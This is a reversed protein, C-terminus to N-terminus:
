QVAAGLAALVAGEHSDVVLRPRMDKLYVGLTAAARGPM